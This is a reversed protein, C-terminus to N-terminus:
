SKNKLVCIIDARELRGVKVYHSIIQEQHGKGACRASQVERVACGICDAIYIGHHSEQAAKDCERCNNM